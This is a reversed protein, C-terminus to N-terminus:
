VKFLMKLKKCKRIHHCILSKLQLFKNRKDESLIFKKFCKLSLKKIKSVTKIKFQFYNVGFNKKSKRKEITKLWKNMSKAVIKINPFHGIMIPNSEIVSFMLKLDKNLIKKM